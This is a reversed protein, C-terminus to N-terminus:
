EVIFDDEHESLPYVDNEEDKSHTDYYVQAYFPIEKALAGYAWPKPECCHPCWYGGKLITFPSSEFGHGNHCRWKVKKYIDGAKYDESLCKGSRFEAAKVLDAFTLSDLSKSEDYGHELLLGQEKAATIDRFKDYNEDECM